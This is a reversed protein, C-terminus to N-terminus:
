ASGSGLSLTGRALTALLGARRAQVTFRVEDAGAECRATATEDPLLAATFKVHKVASVALGLEANVGALVQGLLLVGPVVPNGPFHGPLAPHAHGVSFDFAFTRPQHSM